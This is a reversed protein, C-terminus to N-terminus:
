FGFFIKLNKQQPKFSTNTSVVAPLIIFFLSLCFFSGNGHSSLEHNKKFHNLFFGTEPIILVHVVQHVIDLPKNFFEGQIFGRDGDASARFIVQHYFFIKNGPVM